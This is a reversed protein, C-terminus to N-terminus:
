INRQEKPNYWIQNNGTEEGYVQRQTLSYMFSVLLEVDAQEVVEHQERNCDPREVVDPTHTCTHITIVNCM